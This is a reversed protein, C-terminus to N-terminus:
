CVRLLQDLVGAPVEGHLRLVKGNGVTLEVSWAPARLAAPLEVEVFDPELLAGSEAAYKQRWKCLSSVRLGYQTSFDRLCLGSEEFRRAWEVKEAASVVLGKPRLPGTPIFYKKDM